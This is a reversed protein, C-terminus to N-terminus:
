NPHNQIYLALIEKHKLSIAISKLGVQQIKWLLDYSVSQHKKILETKVAESISPIDGLQADAYNIYSKRIVFPHDHPFIVCSNDGNDLSNTVNVMLVKNPDKDPAIVIFLCDIKYTPPRPILFTKGVITM